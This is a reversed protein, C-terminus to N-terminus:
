STIIGKQESTRMHKLTNKIEAGLKVGPNLIHHPDFADKIETYLEREAESYIENLPLAKTRGEPSGGTLSGNCDRVLQGYQQLFMIAKRRGDVSSYDIEPRVTYNSSSFSGYLSLPTELTEELIKLENIYEEFKYSPIYVDDAIPLRQGDSDDNLYCLLVSNLEDFFDSNDNTEEVVYTGAPLIEICRKIKRAARRHSENFGIVALWGKEPLHNLLEIDKGQNKASQLLRLDCLKFISPDLDVAFNAFRLLARVDHLVVALRLMPPPLVEIRMIIDTVMGLTGQSAFLLPLLNISRSQKIKTINAYGAADFPRMSRDMITDGYEDLIRDLRRYLTGEASSESIKAAIHRTSYPGFQAVEGSSLVVEVREIFHFIGGAHPMLDDTPCNAILGGLTARSDYDIPLYHGHLGLAANLAGLTIGPQVRILRGRLDIEEIRDMRETSVIMGEGIAAGTKDLGTGRITVPLRYGRLALQNAFGILHRTDETNEPFAVLRPTMQLISRDSIYSQCVSPRDFVNGLIHRNLYNALKSM